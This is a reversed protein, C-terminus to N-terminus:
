AKKGGHNYTTTYKSHKKQKDQNKDRADCTQKMHEAQAGLINCNNTDYNNTGHLLCDGCKRGGQNNKGKSRVESHLMSSLRSINIGSKKSSYVNNSKLSKNPRNIVEQMDIRECFSLFEEETSLIHSVDNKIFKDGWIKPLARKISWLM